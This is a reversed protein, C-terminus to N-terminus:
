APRRRAGGTVLDGLWVGIVFLLSLVVATVLVGIAGVVGAIELVPVHTLFGLLLLIAAVVAGILVGERFLRGKDQRGPKLAGYAFGLVLVVLGWPIAM